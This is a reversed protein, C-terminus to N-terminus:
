AIENEQEAIKEVIISPRQPDQLLEIFEKLQNALQASVLTRGIIFQLDGQKSSTEPKGAQERVADRLDKSYENHLSTLDLSINSGSLVGNIVVRISDVLAQM